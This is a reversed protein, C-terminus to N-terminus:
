PGADPEATASAPAAGFLAARALRERVTDYRQDDGRVFGNALRLPGLVRRGQASRTDISLLAAQLVRAQEDDLAPGAVMADYPVRGTKAM